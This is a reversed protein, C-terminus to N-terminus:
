AARRRLYRTRLADIAAELQKGALPRVQQPTAAKARMGDLLIQLHRRYAAPAVAVTAELVPLFSWLALTLDGVAYDERLSGQEKAREVIRGLLPLMRERHEALARGEGHRLFVGRLPLNKAQLDLVYELFGV